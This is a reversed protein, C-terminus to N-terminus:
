EEESEEPAPPLHIMVDALMQAGDELRTMLTIDALNEPRAIDFLLDLVYRVSLHTFRVVEPDVNMTEEEPLITVLEPLEGLIEDMTEVVEDAIDDAQAQLMEDMTMGVKKGSSKRKVQDKGFKGTRKLSEYSVEPDDEEDGSVDADPSSSVGDEVLKGLAAKLLETLVAPEMELEEALEKEELKAVIDAVFDDNIVDAGLMNSLMPFAWNPDGMSVGVDFTGERSGVIGVDAPPPVFEKRSHKHLQEILVKMNLPKALVESIGAKAAATMYDQSTIRSLVVIRCKFAFEPDSMLRQATDIPDGVQWDGDMVVVEPMTVLATAETQRLTSGRTVDFQERELTNALLNRRGENEDAIIVKPM